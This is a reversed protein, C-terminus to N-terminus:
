LTYTHADEPGIVEAESIRLVPHGLRNFILVYERGTAVETYIRVRASSTLVLRLERRIEHSEKDKM